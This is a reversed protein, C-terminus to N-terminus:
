IGSRYTHIHIIWPGLAYWLRCDRSVKLESYKGVVADIEINRHAMCCLMGIRPISQQGNKNTQLSCCTFTNM